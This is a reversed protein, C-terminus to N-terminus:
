VSVRGSFCVATADPFVGMQDSGVMSFEPGLLSAPPLHVVQVELEETSPSGM